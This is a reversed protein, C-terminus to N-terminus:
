RGERGKEQRKVEELIAAALHVAAMDGYHRLHHAVGRM